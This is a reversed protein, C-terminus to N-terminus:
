TPKHQHHAEDSVVPACIVIDGLLLREHASGQTAFALVNTAGRVGRYHENLYAGEDRDVIRITLEAARLGRKALAALAWRRLTNAAPVGRRGAAFQVGIEANVPM